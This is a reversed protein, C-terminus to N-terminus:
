LLLLPISKGHVVFSDGDVCHATTNSNSEREGPMVFSPQLWQQYAQVKSPQGSIITVLLALKSHLPHVMGLRGNLQLLDKKPQLLRPHNILLELLQPHVLVTDGVINRSWWGLDQQAQSTLGMTKEFNGRASKLAVNKCRELSRYFLGGYKVGPLAAILCGVASAVARIKHSAGSNLKKCIDLIVGKRTDSLCISMNLADLVFGLFVIRQAPHLVSKDQNLSFGLFGLLNHTAHINELCHVYTDGQLYSDHIYIVSAYDHKRLIDDLCHTYIDGQLYSDDIYIVSAYDHKRLFGFPQKLLKTFLLPAQAYGNPMCLVEYYCGKWYCTFYQQFPPNVRVSYYADRLDISGMWVGPKILQRVHKLSEVKFHVYIISENLNKLNLITRHSGDPKMITFISSVFSDAKLETPSIVHKLLKIEADVM